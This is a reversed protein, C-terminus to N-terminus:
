PASSIEGRARTLLALVTDINVSAKLFRVSGDCMLINAGAPHFAYIEKDNICNVVCPGVPNSPNAPDFGGVSIRSNPNAWPGATWTQSPDEKGMIFRRNRGACEALMMTNSTGDTITAFTRSAPRIRGQDVDTEGLVGIFQPDGVKVAEWEQAGIFPNPRTIETTAAYDLVGRNAHRGTQPASPCLFIPITVRIPGGAASNAGEDWNISFNYKRWVNEQEIYPLIHPTWSHVKNGSSAIVTVQRAAPFEGVADHHNHFGLGLQKMHNTCKMRNAAERIKQVAPLLLGILIAIIAIVVLLEILTFAQRRRSRTAFM